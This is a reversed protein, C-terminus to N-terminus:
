SWLRYACLEGFVGSEVYLRSIPTLFDQRTRGKLLISIETYSFTTSGHCKIGSVAGAGFM